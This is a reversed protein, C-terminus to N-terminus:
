SGGDRHLVRADVDARCAKSEALTAAKDVCRLLATRYALEEASVADGPLLGCGSCHAVLYLLGLLLGVAALSERIARTRRM